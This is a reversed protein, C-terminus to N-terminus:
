ITPSPMNAFSFCVQFLFCINVRTSLRFFSRTALGDLKLIAIDNETTPRNWDKHIKISAVKFTEDATEGEKLPRNSVLIEAFTGFQTSGGGEGRPLRGFIQNKM